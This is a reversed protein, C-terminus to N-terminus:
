RQNMEDRTFKRGADAYSLHKMLCNYAYRRRGQAFGNKVRRHIGLSVTRASHIFMALLKM